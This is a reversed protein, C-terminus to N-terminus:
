ANNTESEKQKLYEFVGTPDYMVKSRSAVYKFPLDGSVRLKALDLKTLGTLHTVEFEALGHYYIAQRPSPNAPIKRAM